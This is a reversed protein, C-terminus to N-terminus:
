STYLFTVIPEAAIGNAAAPAAAACLNAVTIPLSQEVESKQGSRPMRLKQLIHAGEELRATRCTRLFVGYAHMCAHM